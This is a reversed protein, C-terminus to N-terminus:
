RTLDLQRIALFEARAEALYVRLVNRIDSPDYEPFADAPAPPVARSSHHLRAEHKRKADWWALVHADSLPRFRERAVEYILRRVEPETLEGDPLENPPYSSPM